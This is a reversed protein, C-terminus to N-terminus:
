RYNEKEKEHKEVARAVTWDICNYEFYVKEKRFFIGDGWPFVAKDGNSEKLKLLADDILSSGSQTFYPILDVKYQIDKTEEFLEAMKSEFEFRGKDIKALSGTLHNTFGTCFRAAGEEQQSSKIIPVRKIWEYIENGIEIFQFKAATM